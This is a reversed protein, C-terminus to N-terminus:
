TRFSEIARRAAVEGAEDADVVVLCQHHRVAAAVVADVRQAVDHAIRAITSSLAREDL